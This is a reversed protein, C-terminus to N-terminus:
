DHILGAAAARRVADVKRLISARAKEPCPQVTRWRGPPKGIGHVARRHMSLLMLAENASMTPIPADADLAHESAGLANCASEIMAFELRIYGTELAADWRERFGPWKRRHLYASKPAMGATECSLKVNASASLARLFVAETRPSWQRLRARALVARRVRGSRIVLEEGDVDGWKAPPALDPAAAFRAAAAAVAAHCRAAFGPDQRKHLHVWGRSVKARTAAVAYNGTSELARFFAARRAPAMKASM